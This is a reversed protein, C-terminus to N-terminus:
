PFLTDKEQFAETSYLGPRSYTTNCLPEIPRNNAYMEEPRKGLGITLITKQQATYSALSIHLLIKM